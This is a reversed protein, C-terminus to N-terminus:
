HYIAVKILDILLKANNIAGQDIRNIFKSSIPHDWALTLQQVETQNHTQTKNHMHLVYIEIRISRRWSVVSQASIRIRRFLM